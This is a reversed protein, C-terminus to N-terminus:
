STKMGGSEVQFVGDTRGTGISDPCSKDNFDVNDMDLKVGTDKEVLRVANQIVTPYAAGPLGNESPGAGGANDHTFQPPLAVTPVAPFRCLNIRARRVSLWALLM